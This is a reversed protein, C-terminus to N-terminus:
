PKPPTTSSAPTVPSPSAAGAPRAPSASSAQVVPAAAGAPKAPITSDAYAEVSNQMYDDIQSAANEEADSRKTKMAVDYNVWATRFAAEQTACAAKMAAKFANAEMKDSIKDHVFKSLCMGYAQREHSPAVPAAAPAAMNLVLALVIM